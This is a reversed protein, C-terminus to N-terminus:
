NIFNHNFIYINNRVTPIKDMGSLVNLHIIVELTALIKLDILDYRKAISLLLKKHADLRM